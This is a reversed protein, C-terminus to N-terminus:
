GFWNQYLLVIGFIVLFPIALMALGRLFVAMAWGILAGVPMAGLAGTIGSAHYGLYGSLGVGILLGLIAWANRYGRGQGGLESTTVFFDQFDLM